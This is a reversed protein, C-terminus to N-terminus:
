AAIPVREVEKLIHPGIYPSLAEATILEVKRELINELLFAVEMFNDFTHKEPIFEVLIDIDSEPTQEGRVFSGFLGINKVGYFALKKQESLIRHFILSKADMRQIMAGRRWDKKRM